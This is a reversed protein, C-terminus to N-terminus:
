FDIDVTISEGDKGHSVTRADNKLSVESEGVAVEIKGHGEIDGVTVDTLGQLNYEAVISSLKEETYNWSGTEKM